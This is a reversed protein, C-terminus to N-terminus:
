VPAGCAACYDRHAMPRVGCYRCRPLAPNPDPSWALISAWPTGPVHSIAVGAPLVMEGPHIIAAVPSSHATM